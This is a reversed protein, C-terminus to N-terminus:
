VHIVFDKWIDCMYVFKVCSVSLVGAGLLQKQAKHAYHFCSTRTRHKLIRRKKENQGLLFGVVPGGVEPPLSASSSYLRTVRRLSRSAVAPVNLLNVDSWNDVRFLFLYCLSIAWASFATPRM